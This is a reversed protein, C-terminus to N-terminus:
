LVIGSSSGGTNGAYNAESENRANLREEHAKMAKFITSTTPLPEMTAYADLFDKWKTSPHM